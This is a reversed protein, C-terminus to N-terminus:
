MKIEIETEMPETMGKMLHHSMKTNFDRSVSVSGAPSLNALLM